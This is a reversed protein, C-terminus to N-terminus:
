LRARRKLELYRNIVRPSLTRADADITEIGSSQLMHLTEERDNVLGTAIAREYMSTADVPVQRSTDVIAPDRVTVVLPLHHRRLRLCQRILAAGQDPDLVDTFIVVLSRRRQWTRLGGLADDYDAETDGARLPRVADLFRRMQIRGSRPALTTTVGDAFAMLGVRDGGQLAVHVLLLAANIACDLKAIPGTGVGMLRGHDLCVIVPQAREPILDTTMLRGTRATAKWNILRRPDDPVAERVREFETGEGRRRVARVGIEALRGRRVLAEYTRVASLDADISVPAEEGLATQRWGLRWPGEARVLTRGFRGEGRVAPTLSYQLTGPLNIAAVSGDSPIDVPHEDRVTAPAHLRSEVHVTVWNTAGVSLLTDHERRVSLDQPGPARRGDVIVTVAIALLLGLGPFFVPSWVAGLGILIVPVLLALAGRRTM